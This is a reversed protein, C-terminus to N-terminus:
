QADEAQNNAAFETLQPVSNLNPLVAAMHSIFHRTLADATFFTQKGGTAYKIQYEMIGELNEHAAWGDGLLDLSSKTQICSYAHLRVGGSNANVYSPVRIDHQDCYTVLQAWMEAIGTAHFAAEERERKAQRVTERAKKEDEVLQRVTERAKKEDACCQQFEAVLRVAEPVNTMAAM